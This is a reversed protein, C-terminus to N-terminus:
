VTQDQLESSKRYGGLRGHGLAYTSFVNLIPRLIDDFIQTRHIVGPPAEKGTRDMNALLRPMRDFVSCPNGSGIM